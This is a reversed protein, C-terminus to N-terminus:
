VKEIRVGVTAEGVSIAAYDGRERPERVGAHLERALVERAIWDRHRAVAEALDGDARLWAGIRDSIELGTAKRHDNLM